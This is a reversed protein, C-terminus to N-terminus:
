SYPVPSGELLKPDRKVEENQDKLINQSSPKRLNVIFQKSRDVNLPRTVSVAQKVARLANFYDVGVFSNSISLQNGENGGNYQPMRSFDPNNFQIQNNRDM